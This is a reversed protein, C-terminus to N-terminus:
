RHINSEKLNDFADYWSSLKERPTFGAESLSKSFQDLQLQKRAKVASFDVSLGTHQFVFKYDFIERILFTKGIRRRGYVAVFQSEDEHLLAQLQRKEEFRGIM